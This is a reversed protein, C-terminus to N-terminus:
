KGNESASSFPPAVSAGVFARARSYENSLRNSDVRDEDNMSPTTVVSVVPADQPWPDLQIPESIGQLPESNRNVSTQIAVDVEPAHQDDVGIQNLPMHRRADSNELVKHHGNGISRATGNTRTGAKVIPKHAHTEKGGVAFSKGMVSKAHQKDFRVIDKLMTDLSQDTGGLSSIPTPFSSTSVRQNHRRHGVQIAGYPESGSSFVSLNGSKQSIHSSTGDLSALVRSSSLKIGMSSKQPLTQPTDNQHPQKGLFSAHWLFRLKLRASWCM